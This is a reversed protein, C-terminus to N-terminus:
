AQNLTQIAQAQTEPKQWHRVLRVMRWSSWVLALVAMCAQLLLNDSYLLLVGYQCGWLSMKITYPVMAGMPVIGEGKTGPNIAYPKKIAKDMSSRTILVSTTIAVLVYSLIKEPPVMGVIFAPAWIVGFLSLTMLMQTTAAIWPLNNLARPQNHLWMLGGGLVGLFNVAWSCAILLPISVIFTITVVQEAKFILILPIGGMVAILIPRLSDPNRLLQSVMLLFMEVEYVPSHKRKSLPIRKFLTKKVENGESDLKMPKEPRSLASLSMVSSILIFVLMSGFLLGFAQLRQITSYDNIGKITETYFTGLGFLTSLNSPNIIFAVVGALVIALAIFILQKLSFRRQIYEVGWSAFVSISVLLPWSAWTFLLAWTSREELNSLASMTTLAVLQFISITSMMQNMFSDTFRSLLPVQLPSVHRLPFMSNAVVGTFPAILSSYIAMSFAITGLTGMEGRSYSMIYNYAMQKAAIDGQYSATQIIVQGVHSSIIVAIIALSFAALYLIRSKNSNLLNWKLILMKGTSDWARLHEKPSLAHKLIDLDLKM